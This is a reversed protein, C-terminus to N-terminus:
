VGQFLGRLVIEDATTTITAPRDLFKRVITGATMKHYKEDLCEKFEGIINFALAKVWFSKLFTKDFISRM